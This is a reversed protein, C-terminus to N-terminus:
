REQRDRLKALKREADRIQSQISLREQAREKENLRRDQHQLYFHQDAIWRNLEDTRVRCKPM